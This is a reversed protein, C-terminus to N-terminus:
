VPTAVVKLLISSTSIAFRRRDLLNNITGGPSNCIMGNLVRGLGIELSGPLFM